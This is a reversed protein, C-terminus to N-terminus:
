DVLVKWDINLWNRAYQEAILIQHMVLGDPEDRIARAIAARMSNSIDSTALFEFVDFNPALHPNSASPEGDATIKSRQM